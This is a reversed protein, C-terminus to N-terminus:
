LLSFIDWARSFNHTGAQDSLWTWSKTVGFVTAQWAGGDMYYGMFSYKLSNGNGVGPSRGPGPISGTDRASAPSNKVWAM